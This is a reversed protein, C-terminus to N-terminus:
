EETGEWGVIKKVIEWLGDTMRYSYEDDDEHYNFEKPLHEIRYSSETMGNFLAYELMYRPVKKYKVLNWNKSADEFFKERKEELSNCPEKEDYPDYELKFYEEIRYYLCSPAFEKWTDFINESDPYKVEEINWENGCKKCKNVPLTDFEGDIKGHGSGYGYSSGGFLFSSSSSTYSSHSEGHIEGKGRVINHIVDTSDCKPCINNHRNAREKLEMYRASRRADDQKKYEALYADIKDKRERYQRKKEQAIALKEAEKAKRKEERAQRRAKFGFIDFM